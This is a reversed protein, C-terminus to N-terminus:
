GGKENITSYIKFYYWFWGSFKSGDKEESPYQWEKSKAFM